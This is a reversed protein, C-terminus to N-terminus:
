RKAAAGLVAIHGLEERIIRDIGDRGFDAPVVERIGAYFVVSEKELRIAEALIGPLTPAAGLMRAPDAELDFVEGAAFARLYAAAQGDPDGAPQWKTFVAELLWDRGPRGTVDAM